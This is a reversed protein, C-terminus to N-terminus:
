DLGTPLGDISTRNKEARYAALGADGKKEAWRVLDDRQGAYHYIPVGFGCSTQVSDIDLVVIARAGPIDPFNPALENWDPDAPSVMRGRGYLRLILPEGEFSCFLLTLRGDAELHAATEAGSGTLDLYAVRTEGLIRLSDLGKPSLNVRGTAAASATFFLHQRGIFEALTPTIGPYFKAMHKQEPGPHQGHLDFFALKQCNQRATLLV